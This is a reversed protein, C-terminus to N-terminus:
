ILSIFLFSIPTIMRQTDDLIEAFIVDNEESENETKERDLRLRRTSRQFSKKHIVILDMFYTNTKLNTVIDLSGLHDKHFEDQNMKRWSPPGCLRVREQAHPLPPLKLPPVDVEEEKVSDNMFLYNYVTNLFLRTDECVGKMLIDTDEFCNSTVLNNLIEAVRAKWTHPQFIEGLLLPSLNLHNLFAAESTSYIGRGWNQTVLNRSVTSAAGSAVV